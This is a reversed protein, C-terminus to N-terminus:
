ALQKQKLTDFEAQTIAGSDLLTKGKAIEDAPSTGAVNKIYNDAADRNAQAANMQREAMGRGRAILYVLATLFPLAFIAIFWLVKFWGNLKGDRILDSIISFLVMLYAIFAYGVLFIWIFGWFTDWNM